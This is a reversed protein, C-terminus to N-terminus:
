PSTACSGKSWFAPNDTGGAARSLTCTVGSVVLSAGTETATLSTVGQVNVNAVENAASAKNTWGSTQSATNILDKSFLITSAGNLAAVVGNAVGIAAEEKMGIYKPIAIAALIGLIVIIIILEILTFGKTNRVTKM